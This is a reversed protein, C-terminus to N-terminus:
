AYERSEHDSSVVVRVGEALWGENRAARCAAAVTVGAAVLGGMTVAVRAEEASWYRRFGSGPGPNLAQLYGKRTWHDLKRYTLASGILDWIVAHGDPVMSCESCRRLGALEGWQHDTIRIGCLTHDGRVAHDVLGPTVNSGNRSYRSSRWVPVPLTATM